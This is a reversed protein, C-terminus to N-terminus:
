VQRRRGLVRWVSSAHDVGVSLRGRVGELHQQGAVTAEDGARLFVRRNLEM